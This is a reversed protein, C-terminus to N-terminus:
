ITFIRWSGPFFLLETQVNLLHPCKRRWTEARLPPQRMNINQTDPIFLAVYKSNEEFAWWWRPQFKAAKVFTKDAIISDQQFISSMHINHNSHQICLSLRIWCNYPLLPFLDKIPWCLVESDRGKSDLRSRMLRTTVSELDGNTWILHFRFFKVWCIFLIEWAFQSPLYVPLNNKLDKCWM